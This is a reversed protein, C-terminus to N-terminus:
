PSLVVKTAVRSEFLEYGKPADSLPLRHSIIPLPDIRGETVARMAGDWWAHVPCIGSFQIRYGRLWFMGLPLEVTEGVFMGVVTIIGGRRAVNIATEYGSASGVAEIVVDAGRGETLGDVATEPNRERVNIPVAGFREALALRDPEMDLALVQGPDHLRAAQVCFFGVPGAGVVAVTDGPRIGAIGAGYYGTTLIDGVFLAREDELRDPIGLLNTDANPVRVLEAQTGGLGGGVLGAGLNRFDGCLATQGRRCFWCDGCVINFAVVVRDGPKFRRVEPGVSEVVGVGEHGITDGPELPAKGNYFHLDSGCIAATTVRVVADPPDEVNPEPVDGVVVQRVDEYVVAKM